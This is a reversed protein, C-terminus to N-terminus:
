KLGKHQEILAATQSVVGRGIKAHPHLKYTGSDVVFSSTGNIQQWETWTGRNKFPLSLDFSIESNASYSLEVHKGFASKMALGEGYAIGSNGCQSYQAAYIGAGSTNFTIACDSHDFYITGAPTGAAAQSSLLAASTLMLYKNM